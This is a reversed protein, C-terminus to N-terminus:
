KKDKETYESVLQTARIKAREADKTELIKKCIGDKEEPSLSTKAFGASAFHVLLDKADFTERSINKLAWECLGRQYNGLLYKEDNGDLSNCGTYNKVVSNKSNTSVLSGDIKMTMSCNNEAIRFEYKKNADLKIGIPHKCTFQSNHGSLTLTIYEGALIDKNAQTYGYKSPRNPDFIPKDHLYKWRLTNSTCVSIYAKLYGNHTFNVSALPKSEPTNYIDEPEPNYYGGVCGNLLVCM